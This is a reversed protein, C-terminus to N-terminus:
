YPGRGRGRSRYPRRSNQMALFTMFNAFAPPFGGRGGRGRGRSRSPRSTTSFGPRNTRKQAVKIQRGKFLSDDMDLALQISSKDEFEIYAFGKPHHDDRHIPITVRVINGCHHFHKELEDATASYEVNRVCISRHDAEVKENKDPTPGDNEMMGVQQRIQEMNMQKPTTQNSTTEDKKLDKTDHLDAPSFDTSKTVNETM